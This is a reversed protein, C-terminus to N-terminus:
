YSIWEAAKLLSETYETVLMPTFLGGNNRGGLFSVISSVLYFVGPLRSVTFFLSVSISTGRGVEGIIRVASSASEALRVFRIQGLLIHFVMASTRVVTDLLM